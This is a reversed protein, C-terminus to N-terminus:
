GKDAKMGAEGERGGKAARWVKVPEDGGKFFCFLFLVGKYKSGQKIGM